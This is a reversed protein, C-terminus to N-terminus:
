LRGVVIAAAAIIAMIITLSTGIQWRRDIKREDREDERRRLADERLARLENRCEGVDTAMRGMDGEAKAALVTLDQIKQDHGEVAAEVRGLRYSTGNSPGNM